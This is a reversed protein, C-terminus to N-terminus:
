DVIMIQSPNYYLRFENHLIKLNKHLMVHECSEGSYNNLAYCAKYIAAGGFGSFVSIPYSGIPLDFYPFWMMEYYEWSNLRFAFSDYNRYHDQSKSPFNIYSNGCIASINENSALWGFSNLIGNISIDLFDLDIVIYYDFDGKIANSLNYCKNRANAMNTTRIESKSLPMYSTKIQESYLNFNEYGPESIKQKILAPTNDISDNEYIYVKSDHHFNELLLRIQRLSYNFEQKVNRALSFVAIKKDTAFNKGSELQNQYLETFEETTPFIENIDYILNNM